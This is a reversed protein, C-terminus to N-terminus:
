DSLRLPPPHKVWDGNAGPYRRLVLKRTAEVPYVREQTYTLRVKVRAWGRERLQTRIRRGVPGRGSRIRIQWLYAGGDAPRPVTSGFVKGSLGRSVVKLRGQPPSSMSPSGHPPVFVSLRAAGSRLNYETSPVIRIPRSPLTLYPPTPRADVAIGHLGFENSAIWTPSAESGDLKARGISSAEGPRKAVWYIHEAQVAIGGVVGTDPIFAENVEGGDLNARAIAEDQGWYLYGGNATLGSSRNLTPISIFARQSFSGDLNARGISDWGTPFRREVWFIYGGGITVDCPSELGTVLTNTAGSGDLNARGVSGVQPGPSPNGGSNGWYIHNGDVALGCPGHLKPVVTAPYLGEGDLKRRGIGQYGTWYVYESNVAVDSAPGQSESAFPWYFYNWQPASGDLNAAGVGDISSGWYVAASVRTTGVTVSLFLLTALVSIQVLAWYGRGLARAM